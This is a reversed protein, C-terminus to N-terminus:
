TQSSRCRVRVQFAGPSGIGGVAAVGRDARTQRPALSAALGSVGTPRPVYEFRKALLKTSALEAPLWDGTLDAAFKTLYPAGM